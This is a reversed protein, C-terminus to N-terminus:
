SSARSTQERRSGSWVVEPLIMALRSDLCCHLQRLRGFHSMSILPSLYRNCPLLLFSEVVSLLPVSAILKTLDPGANPNCERLARHPCGHCGRPSTVNHLRRSSNETSLQLRTLGVSRSQCTVKRWPPCSIELGLSPARTSSGQRASGSPIDEWRQMKVGVWHRQTDRRPWENRM